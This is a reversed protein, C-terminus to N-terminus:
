ACIMIHEGVMVFSNTDRRNFSCQSSRVGDFCNDGALRHCSKWSCQTLLENENNNRCAFADVLYRRFSNDEVQVVRMYCM